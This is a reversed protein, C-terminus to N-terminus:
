AATRPSVRMDAHDSRQAFGPSGNSIRPPVEIARLSQQTRRSPTPRCRSRIRADTFGKDFGIWEAVVHKGHNPMTRPRRTDIVPQLLMEAFVNISSKVVGNKATEVLRMAPAMRTCRAAPDSRLASRADIENGPM